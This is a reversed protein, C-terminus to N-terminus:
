ARGRGAGAHRSPDTAHPAPEVAPDDPTTCPSRRGLGDARAHCSTCVGVQRDLERLVRALESTLQNLLVPVDGLARAMASTELVEAILALSTAGMRQATAHLEHALAGLRDTEAAEYADRCGRVAREAADGFDAATRALPAAAPDGPYWAAALHVPNLTATAPAPCWTGGPDTQADM